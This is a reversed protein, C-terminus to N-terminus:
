GVVDETQRNVIRPKPFELAEGALGALESGVLADEVFEAAEAEVVRLRGGIGEEVAQDLQGLRVAAFGAAEAANEGLSVIGPASPREPEWREGPKPRRWVAGAEDWTM